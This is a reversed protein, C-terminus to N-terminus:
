PRWFASSPSGPACCRWSATSWTWRRRRVVADRLGGGIRAAREEMTAEVRPRSIGDRLREAFPTVTGAATRLQSDLVSVLDREAFRMLVTGALLVSVAVLGAVVVAVRTSLGSRWRTTTM